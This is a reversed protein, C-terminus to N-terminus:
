KREIVGGDWEIRLATRASALKKVGAETVKTQRLRVVGPTKLEMLHELGADGVQTGNLNLERLDKCDKFIALASDGIQLGDLHVFMLDQCDRLQNLGAETVRTHRLDLTALKRCNKFVAFGTDGIATGGLILRGINAREGLAVLGKDTIRTDSLGLQELHKHDKFLALGQDTVATNDLMLAKLHDQCDTFAALGADTVPTGSLYLSVLNRCGQFAALGADTAQPNGTVNAMGLKWDGAPITDGAKFLVAKGDRLTGGISLVWEAARRDPDAAVPASQPALAAASSVDAPLRLVLIVPSSGVVFVYRGSPDLDFSIPHNSPGLPIVERAKAQEPNWVRLADDRASSILTNGDASFALSDIAKEHGSLIRVALSTKLDWLRISGDAHGTALRSGDPHFASAAVAVDVKWSALENGSAISWVTLQKAQADASVVLSGDGSFAPQCWKGKTPFRHVSQKTLDWLRLYGDNIVAALYAGDPSAAPSILRLPATPIIREKGDAEDRIFIAKESAGVIKHGNHSCRVFSLPPELDPVKVLSNDGPRDLSWQRVTSDDGASLLTKGDPHIAVSTVWHRHGKEVDQLQWTATDWLTVGGNYDASGL